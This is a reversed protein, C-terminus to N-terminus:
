TDEHKNIIENYIVGSVVFIQVSLASAAIYLEGKDYHWGMFTVFGMILVGQMWWLNDTIKM